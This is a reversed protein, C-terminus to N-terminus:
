SCKIEVIIYVVEPVLRKQTLEGEWKVSGPEGYGSFVVPM